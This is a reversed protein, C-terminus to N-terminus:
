AVESQVMGLKTRTKQIIDKMMRWDSRTFRWVKWLDQGSIRSFAVQLIASSVFYGASMAIAAGNLGFVPMLVWLLVLNTVMGAAVSTSAIGPHNTGILYPVFLKSASRVLIGIATIRILPVASLFQPSFLLYVVPTALLALLALLTASLVAVVRACQGILESRGTNDEAVRPILVTTLTDPLIMVQATLMTAVAFLGIEEKTAFFALIITGIQFNVSNSIKGLYYRLGYHLMQGLSEQSPWVWRLQHKRRYFALVALTNLLTALFTSLLAGNVGWALLPVFILIFILQCANTFISFVALWGFQRVSGLLATLTTSFFSAPILALSLYFSTPAAKNLFALPLQMIILGVIIALLCGLGGQICMNSVGESLTFKRASVYYLVAIDCGLVCVLNLLTTFLLCVAYSGRGAPALFWALCSQSAMSLLLTAVQSGFTVTFDRIGANM